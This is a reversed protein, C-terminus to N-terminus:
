DLVCTQPRNRAVDNECRVAPSGNGSAPPLSRTGHEDTHACVAQRRKAYVKYLGAASIRIATCDESARVSASRAGLDMVAMEGFCDGAKLTGLVYDQGQWSKLVVVAGEELVFMSDGTM